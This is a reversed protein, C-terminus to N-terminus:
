HSDRFWTFESTIDRVQVKVLSKAYRMTPTPRAYSRNANALVQSREHGFVSEVCIADPGRHTPCRKTTSTNQRDRPHINAHHAGLAQALCGLHRNQIRVVNGM